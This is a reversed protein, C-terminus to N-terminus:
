LLHYVCFIFIFNTQNSLSQTDTVRCYDRLLKKMCEQIYHKFEDKFDEEDVWEENLGEDADEEEEEEEEAEEEKEEDEENEFNKM